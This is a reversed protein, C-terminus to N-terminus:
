ESAITKLMEQAAPVEPADPHKKILTDLTLKADLQDNGNKLFAQAQRLLSQSTFPGKPYRLVLDNFQIIARGYDGLEFLANAAFYEAPEILPSKQYRHQLDNFKVLVVKYKGDKMAGLLARYIKAGQESSGKASDIQKDLDRPWTPAPAPPGAAAAPAGPIAALAAGAPPPAGPTGPAAAGPSNALGVQLANVESELRGLRDDISALQDGGAGAGAVSGHKMETIEDRLQKIQQQLGDIQQRDSAIMGRLTFQNQNLQQLDQQATCGSAALLALAAIAAAFLASTRSTM